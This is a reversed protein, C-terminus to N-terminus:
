ASITHCIKQSACLVSRREMSKNYYMHVNKFATNLDRYESTLALSDVEKLFPFDAKYAPPQTDLSEKHEDYYAIKDALM